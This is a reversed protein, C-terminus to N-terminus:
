KKVDTSPLPIATYINLQILFHLVNELTITGSEVRVVVTQPSSEFRALVINDTNQIKAMRSPTFHCRVTKNREICLCPLFSAKLYMKCDSTHLLSSTLDWDFGRNPCRAPLVLCLRGHWARWTSKTCTPKWGWKSLCHQPILEMYKQHIWELLAGKLNQHM